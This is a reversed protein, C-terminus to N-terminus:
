EISNFYFDWGKHQFATVSIVLSLPSITLKSNIGSYGDGDIYPEGTEEQIDEEEIEVGNELLFELFAEKHEPYELNYFEEDKDHNNIISKIQEKKM